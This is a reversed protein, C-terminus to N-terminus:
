PEEPEPLPAHHTASYRSFLVSGLLVFFVLVAGATASGAPTSTGSAVVLAIPVAATLGGCTVQIVHDGIAANPLQVAGTFTGDAQTTTSGAAVGEVTYTV